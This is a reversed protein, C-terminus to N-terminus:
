EDEMDDFQEIAEHRRALSKGGIDGFGGLPIYNSRPIPRPGWTLVTVLRLIPIAVEARYCHSHMGSGDVCWYAALGITWRLPEVHITVARRLLRSWIYYERRKM